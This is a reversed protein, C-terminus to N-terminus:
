RSHAFHDVIERVEMQNSSHRIKTLASEDALLGTLEMLARLHSYSDVTGLVIAIDVPDNEPHGFRVPSNLTTLSMCLRRVGDEPRAHLLVVGPWTVAYPGHKEIVKMMAKVYAPEIAGTATLSESAKDVVDRWSEASVKLRITDTTILNSLSIDGDPRLNVPQQLVPAIDLGLAERLRSIDESQLLPNITIVPTDNVELPITAVIADIAIKSVKNKLLEMLSLVQVIEIEPLEARIRSVLLWATAVGEVCVILIRKKNGPKFRLREMAAGLHLAIYGVEEEPINLGTKEQLSASSKLAVQFIYPYQRKIHELLPNRIPLDFLLRILLPKFHLALGDILKQDVRLYPHLFNSAEAVMDEIIEQVHPNITEAYKTADKDSVVLLQAAIFAVESEALIVNFNSQIRQTIMKAELYEQEASISLLHEHPFEIIQGQRNRAILLSLHLVLSVYANDSVQLQLKVIAEDVLSKSYSIDLNQIFERLPGSEGPVWSPLPVRPGTCLTLLLEKGSSELLLSVIAERRDRERGLAQFGFHPRSIMSINHGRLWLEAEQLDRLVTARSVSLRRTLQKILVPEQDTLLALIVVHLREVPALFGDDILHELESILTTKRLPACDILIGYNAKCKLSVGREELWAETYRLSYRVMRSTIGLLSAIEGSTLSKNYRLLILLIDRSRKDLAIM